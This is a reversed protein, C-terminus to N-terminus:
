KYSAIIQNRLYELAPKGQEGVNDWRCELSIKGTYGIRYLAAMYPKFDDGAVGPPTRKEREAIHCHVLNKRAKDINAAPEHEKLMHYIDATLKFNPHHVKNVIDNAEELTNVFNTETSNLNEIAITVNYPAATKAIKRCLDIFQTRASDKSTGEPVQRANGSGLVIMKIGAIKARQMVKDVYTLVQSENVAPGVLKINGPFFGNCNELLCNLNRMQQLYVRFTDEPVDPALIRTVTEEIYTFGQDHLVKDNKFSATIGLAPLRTQANSQLVLLLFAYFPWRLLNRMYKKMFASLFTLFM